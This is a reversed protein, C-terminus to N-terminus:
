SAARFYAAAHFFATRKEETLAMAEEDEGWEEIQYDEDVRSIRWIEEDSAFAHTTAFALILSGSIATLDHFAALQFDSLDAVMSSLRKLCDPDQGAHIVGTRPQLNANLEIAAWRLMPDWETAQRNILTQPGDARYCLLDADGYDALMQAVENHQTGVKEIASNSTRTWPMTLPNIVDTQANWEAAIPNAIERTPVILPNKAPTRVPRGDLSISYGQDEKQVSANKWFRKAKWDSM